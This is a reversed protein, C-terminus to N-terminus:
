KSSVCLSAQYGPTIGQEDKKHPVVAQKPMPLGKRRRKETGERQSVLCLWTGLQTDDRHIM